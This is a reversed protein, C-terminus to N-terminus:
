RELPNNEFSGYLSSYFSLLKENAGYSKWVLEELREFLKLKESCRIYNGLYSKNVAIQNKNLLKFMELFSSVLM